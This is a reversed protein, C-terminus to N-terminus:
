KKNQLVLCTREFFKCGTRSLKLNLTGLCGGDSLSASASNLPLSLSPTYLSAWAENKTVIEKKDEPTIPINMQTQKSTARAKHQM